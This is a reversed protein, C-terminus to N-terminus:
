NNQLKEIALNKAKAEVEVDVLGSQHMDLLDPQFEAIYDSHVRRRAPKDNEFGPRSNSLHTTPRVDLPWTSRGLDLANKISLTGPNIAHHHVDVVVPVSTRHSVKVLDRVTYSFECNELTLRKRASDDLLEIAAVLADSRGRKGGHVNINFYPTQPLGMLDFLFGHFNLEAIAADVVHQKDSSLVFYQSPHTNVRMRNDIIFKGIKKLKDRVQDNDWLHRPVKDFLPFLASSIRVFHIGSRLATSLLSQLGSLNDIYASKITQEDYDDIKSLLLRKHPTKNVLRGRRDVGLWMCCVGLM